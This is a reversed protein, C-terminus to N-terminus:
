PVVVDNVKSDSTSANTDTETSTAQTSDQVTQEETPVVGSYVEMAIFRYAEAISVIVKTLDSKAIAPDVRDLYTDVKEAADESVANESLDDKVTKLQLAIYAYVDTPAETQVFSLARKKYLSVSASRANEATDGVSQLKPTGEGITEIAGAVSAFENLLNLVETKPFASDISAGILSELSATHTDIHSSLILTDAEPVTEKKSLEKIEALRHQLLTLQYSAKSKNSLYLKEAVNEVVSTKASYLTDGPISQMAFAVFATGILVLGVIAYFIYRYLSSQTATKPVTQLSTVPSILGDHTTDEKHNQPDEM